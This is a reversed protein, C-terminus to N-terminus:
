YSKNKGSLNSSTEYLIAELKFEEKIQRITQTGQEKSKIHPIRVKNFNNVVQIYAHPYHTKLKGLLENALDAHKFAGVQIGYKDPPISQTAKAYSLELHKIKEQEMVQTQANTTEGTKITSGGQIEKSELPQQMFIEDKVAKDTKVTIPEKVDIETIWAAPEYIEEKTVFLYINSSISFEFEAMAINLDYIGSIYENRSQVIYTEAELLEATKILGERYKLSANKYREEAHILKDRSVNIGQEAEKIKFWKKEVKLMADKKLSDYERNLKEYKAKARNVDFKTKGWEFIDWNITLMLTWLDPVSLPTERQRTYSGVIFSKPYFSSEAIAIEKEANKITYQFASLDKRNKIAIDKSETLGIFLKKNELRDALSIETDPAIGTLNKLTEEKVNFENETKFLDFKQKSIDAKVLLVEEKNIIGEKQHEEALRLREEKEKIIQRQIEKVKLTKLLDYYVSKVKMVVEDGAGKTRMESAKEQMGASEYTNTLYGGTFIPQKMSLTYAYTSEEGAPLEVNSAPIGASFTDKEIIFSPAKNSLAYQVSLSIKPFLESYSKKTEYKHIDLDSLSARLSDNNKLALSICEELTLAESLGGMGGKIFPPLPPNDENDKVAYAYCPILSILLSIIIIVYFIKKVM